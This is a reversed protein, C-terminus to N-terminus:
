LTDRLRRSVNSDLAAIRKPHSSQKDNVIEVGQEVSKDPLNPIHRDKVEVHFLKSLPRNILTMRGMPSSVKVTAGRVRKDKSM